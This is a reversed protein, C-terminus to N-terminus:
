HAIIALRDGKSVYPHHGPMAVDCNARSAGYTELYGAAPALVTTTKLNTDSLIHGLLDGKKVRDCVRQGAQVFLGTHPAIVNSKKAEDSFIVPAKPKVPRGRLVGIAKAMNTIVSLCMEVEREEVTYQGACEYTVGIRGTSCFYGSITFDVAAGPHVFPHGIKLALARLEPINRILVAPTHYKQWCHIDLVHTAEDGVASYIAQSLQATANGSKKGPWTRNMNHGRDDSYPQEPGMRIHPRRDWVAPLNVFPVAVVKGAKMRNGALDIIRSIAEIGQVENGHQAATILFCPGPTGSDLTWYPVNIRRGSKLTAKIHHVKTSIGM